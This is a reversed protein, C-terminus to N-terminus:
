NRLTVIRGRVATPTRRSKAGIAFVFFFRELKTKGVRVFEARM